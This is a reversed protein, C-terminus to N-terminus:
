IKALILHNFYANEVFPQQKLLEWEIELMDTLWDERDMMEATCLSAITRVGMVSNIKLYNNSLQLLADNDYYNIDGFASSFSPSGKLLRRTEEIDYDQVVSQIIRGARNHRVVSVFGDKKLLRVIEDIINQPEDIFELVLHLIIVDFSENDFQKLQTVDGNLQKFPHRQEAADIMEQLYEVATVDNNKALFNSTFAFGSGFDLVKKNNIDGLQRHVTKYFLQGLPSITYDYYFKMSNTM